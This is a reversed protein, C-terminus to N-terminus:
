RSDRASLPATTRSSLALPLPVNCRRGRGKDRARSEPRGPERISRSDTSRSSRSALTRRLLDGADRQWSPRRLRRDPGSGARAPRRRRGGRGRHQRLHLLGDARGRPRSSWPPPRPVHCSPPHWRPRPHGGRHGRRGGTTGGRAIGPRGLYRGGRTRGRIERIGLAPLSVGGLPGSDVGREDGRPGQRERLVEPTGLSGPSASDGPATGPMPIDTRRSM